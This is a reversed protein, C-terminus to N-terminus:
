SDLRRDFVGIGVCMSRVGVFVCLCFCGHCVWVVGEEVEEPGEVGLLGVLLLGRGGLCLCGAGSFGFLLGLGWWVGECCEGGEEGEGLLLVRV